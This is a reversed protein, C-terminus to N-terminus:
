SVFALAGMVLTAVAHRFRAVGAVRRDMSMGRVAHMAATALEHRRQMEADLAGPYMQFM